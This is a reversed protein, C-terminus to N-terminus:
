SAARALQQAVLTRVQKADFPKALVADSGLREATELLPSDRWHASMAVVPCAARNKVCRIVELGSTRPLALDTLVLDFDEAEILELAEVGDNALVLDYGCRGLVVELIHRTSADDEVVLIRAAV